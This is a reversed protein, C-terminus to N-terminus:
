FHAQCPVLECLQPFWPLAVIPFDRYFCRQNSFIRRAHCYNVCHAFWPLAIIPFDHYLHWQTSLILKSHWYNVCQPFWPLLISPSILRSPFINHMAYLSTTWICDACHPIIIFGNTPFDHYLYWQTRLCHDPSWYNVCQFSWYTMRSTRLKGMRPSM